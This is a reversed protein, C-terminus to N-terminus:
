PKRCDGLGEVVKLLKNDAAKIVCMEVRKGAPVPKTCIVQPNDDYVATSFKCNALCSANYDFPNTLSASASLGDPMITCTVAVPEASLPLPLPVVIAVLLTLSKLAHM